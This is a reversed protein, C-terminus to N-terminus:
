IAMEARVVTGSPIRAFPEVVANKEITSSAGIHAFEGIHAGTSVVSASSILAGRGIVAGASVVSRAEIVVSREIKANPSVTASPHTLNVVIYGNDECLDMYKKRLYGDGFSPLAMPFRNVLRSLDSLAGLALENQPDDDLFAIENFIGIAEAIEKVVPGQSGAGLIVLNMRKAGFAESIRPQSYDGSYRELMMVSDLRAKFYEGFRKVIVNPQHIGVYACISYLDMGSQACRRIFANRLDMASFSSEMGYKTKISTLVNQVHHFAPVDLGGTLVFAKANAYLSSHQQLYRWVHPPMPLTRSEQVPQFEVPTGVTGGEPRGIVNRVSVTRAALDIDEWRLAAAESLMLGMHFCLYAAIKRPEVNERLAKEILNCQQETLM